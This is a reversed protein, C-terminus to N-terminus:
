GQREEKEEKVRPAKKHRTGQAKYRASQAKHRTGQAKDRTPAEIKLSIMRKYGLSYDM